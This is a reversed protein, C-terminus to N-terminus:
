FFYTHLFNSDLFFISDLFFNCGFFFQIWFFLIADLFFQIWFFYNADLFWLIVLWLIVLWLIVSWLIVSWLIVSWLIVSLPNGVLSRMTTTFLPPISWDELATLTSWLASTRHNIHKEHTIKMNKKTPSRWKKM